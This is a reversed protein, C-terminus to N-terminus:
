DIVSSWGPTSHNRIRVEEISRMDIKVTVGGETKVVGYDRADLTPRNGLYEGVIRLLSPEYADKQVLLRALPVLRDNNSHQQIRRAEEMARRIIAKCRKNWRSDLFTRGQPYKKTPRGRHLPDFGLRFFLIALLNKDKTKFPAGPFAQAVPWKLVRGLYPMYCPYPHLSWASLDEISPVPYLRLLHPAKRVLKCLFTPDVRETRAAGYEALLCLAEVPLNEPFRNLIEDLLGMEALYEGREAFWYQTAKKFPDESTLISEYRIFELFSTVHERQFDGRSCWLDFSDPPPFLLGFPWLGVHQMQSPFVLVHLKEM